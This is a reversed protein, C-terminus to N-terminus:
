HNWRDDHDDDDSASLDGETESGAEVMEQQQESSDNDYVGTIEARIFGNVVMQPNQAFYNAVEVLWKAGLEKLMPLVLNVPELNPMDNDEEDLQLMM